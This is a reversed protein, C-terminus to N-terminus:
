AASDPQGPVLSELEASVPADGAPLMRLQEAPAPLAPGGAAEGAGHEEGGVVVAQQPAVAAETPAARAAAAPQPASAAPPAEADKTGGARSVQEAQLHRVQGQLLAVTDQWRWLEAREAACRAQNAACRAQCQRLQAELGAVKNQWRLNEAQCQELELEDRQQRLSDREATVGVLQLQLQRASARRCFPCTALAIQPCTLVQAAASAYGRPRCASCAHAAGGSGSAVGPTHALTGAGGPM